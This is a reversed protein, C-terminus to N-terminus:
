SSGDGSAAAQVALGREMQFRVSEDITAQAIHGIVAGVIAFLAMSAMAMTLTGEVGGTDLLGRLIVVLMALTGLVGAYVRGM